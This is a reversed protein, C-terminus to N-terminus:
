SRAEAVVASGGVAAVPAEGGMRAGDGGAGEGADGRGGGGAGAVGDAADAQAALVASGRTPAAGAGWARVVVVIGQRVLDVGGDGGVEGVAVRTSAGRRGDGENGGGATGDAGGVEGGADEGAGRAVLLGEVVAGLQVADFALVLGQLAADALQLALEAATPGAIGTTRGRIVAITAPTTAPM